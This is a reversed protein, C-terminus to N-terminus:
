HFIVKFKHAYISKYIKMFLLIKMKKSVKAHGKECPKSCVSVPTLEDKELTIPPWQIRNYITLNDGNSDWSGIQIYEYKNDNFQFNMVDYIGPPDGSDDFAITENQWQFTVNKLYSLFISGNLPKMAPCNKQMNPCLANQMNHLGHAMTWIASIVFALKTDQKYKGDNM